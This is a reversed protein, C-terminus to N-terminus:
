FEFFLDKIFDMCYNWDIAKVTQKAYIPVEKYLMDNVYFNVSGITEGYQVPAKMYAPLAYDVQVLDDKKLLLSLDEQAVAVEVKQDQGKIIPIPDLVKIKDSLDQYEFNRLGYDMLNVTDKWKFGKNPPWGSGLVVSIFTKGNRNLAGVFCYGANNTFGTKIGMAGDMLYLFKDKNTIAYGRGSTLEKFTWTPTNTIKVFESNKIAYSAIRALDYATTYHNEADLGNPTVFNTNVCGLEKAKDNMLGAFKEVSGAVHEAIAVATDNHSELMLSYLLDKLYFKNGTQANLQVDPMSAAYRSFEVEEELNGYELAIICTMIKTTSAMAMEKYGDKEYLVRNSSADLLLASRANLTFNVKTESNKSKEPIVLNYNSNQQKEKLQKELKDKSVLVQEMREVLVNYQYVSFLLLGISALIIYIFKNKM